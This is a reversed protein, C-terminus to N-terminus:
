TQIPTAAPSAASSTALDHSDITADQLPPTDVEPKVKKWKKKPCRGEDDSSGHDSCAKDRIRKVMKGNGNSWVGPERDMGGYQRRTLVDDVTIGHSRIFMVIHDLIEPDLPLFLDECRHAPRITAIVMAIRDEFGPVCFEMCTPNRRIDHIESAKMRPGKQADVKADDGFLKDEAHQEESKFMQDFADNRCKMLATWGDTGALSPRSKKPLSLYDHLVFCVFPKDWPRVKVFTTGEVVKIEDAKVKWAPSNDLHVAYTVDVTVPMDSVISALSPTHFFDSHSTGQALAYM